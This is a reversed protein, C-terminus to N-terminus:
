IIIQSDQHTPNIDRVLSQTEQKLKERLNKSEEFKFYMDNKKELGRKTNMIKVCINPKSDLDSSLASFKNYKSKQKFM